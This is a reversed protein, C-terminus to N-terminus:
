FEPTSISARAATVAGTAPDITLSFAAAGTRSSSVARTNVAHFPFTIHVVDSQALARTVVERSEIVYSTRTSSGVGSVGSLDIQLLLKNRRSDAPDVALRSQIQATGAFLVSEPRGDVTGSIRVSASNWAVAAGAAAAALALAAFAILSRSRTM